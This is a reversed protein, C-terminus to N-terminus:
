WSRDTITIVIGLGTYGGKYLERSVIDIYTDYYNVFEESVKQSVEEGKQFKCGTGKGHSFILSSDVIGEQALDYLRIVELVCKVETLARVVSQEFSDIDERISQVKGKFISFGSM